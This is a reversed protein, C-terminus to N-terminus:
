SMARPTSSFIRFEWARPPSGKIRKRESRGIVLEQYVPPDRAHVGAALLQQAGEGEVLAYRLQGIRQVVGGGARTDFGLEFLRAGRGGRGPLAVRGAQRRLPNRTAGVGACHEFPGDVM